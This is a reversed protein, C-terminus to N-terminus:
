GEWRSRRMRVWGWLEKRDGLGIKASYRVKWPPRPPDPLCICGRQRELDVGEDENFGGVGGRSSESRVESGEEGALSSRPAECGRECEMLGQRLEGSKPWTFLRWEEFISSGAKSGPQHM